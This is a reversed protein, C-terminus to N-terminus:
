SRCMQISDIRTKKFYEFFDLLTSNERPGTWKLEEGDPGRERTAAWAGSERRGARAGCRGGGVEAPRADQRDGSGGGGRARARRVPGRGVRKTTHRARGRRGCKGGRDQRL